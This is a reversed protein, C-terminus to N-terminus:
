RDSVLDTLKDTIDAMNVSMRKSNESIAVNANVVDGIRNIEDVAKGVVAVNDRVMNAIKEVGANSKKIEEVVHNFADLTRETIQKGSEISQISNTILENTESAAKASKNALMGVESAVVAFGKGMEGARAAEISANLALLHTQSSISDIEDIIKEIERSMNSIQEMSNSLEEMQRQTSLITNVATETTDTVSVSADASENLEKVLDNMVQGLGDVAKKQAETGTYIKDASDLTEKSVSNLESCASRINRVLVVNNEMDKKQQEVLQENENINSSIGSVMKNINESLQRFEPNGTENVTVSFDGDAIRKMSNGINNIGRVIKREVLLNIFIILLFFIVFMSVSVSITQSTRDAFYENTPLFTGILTDEYSQINYYGDVGKVTTKGSGEQVPLGADAASTNLLSEDPHAVINGSTKDIAFVYGSNGYDFDRLVTSIETSALTEELIEPRIGVQVLGPADKRAVGIYQIIIGEAGNEQPEQVIEISPDDVIVMFAASQDSSKMDFGIYSDITSHTIIGDADIVHLENVMLDEKLELIRNNDDLTTPDAAIIDAFARTKALNNEGLSNTLNEIQQDNSLLKEKVSELKEISSTENSSKASATQMGFIVAITVVLGIIMYICLRLTFIKKMTM